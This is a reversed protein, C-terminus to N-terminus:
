EHSICMFYSNKVTFIDSIDYTYEKKWCAYTFSLQDRKSGNKVELWWLKMVEDLKKDFHNRVLCTSDIQQYTEPFGEERYKKMQNEVITIDDLGKQIVVEVEEYLSHVGYHSCCLLSSSKAYKEIYNLMNGLIHVKGDVYVSYNYGRLFQYGIIKVYRAMRVNDLSKIDFFEDIQIIKWISSTLEKSDTFCIYDLEPNVFQPEALQDYNGTIVCYICGKGQFAHNKVSYYTDKYIKEIGYRVAYFKLSNQECERIRNWKTLNEIEKQLSQITQMAWIRTSYEEEQLSDIKKFLIILLSLLSIIGEKSETQLFVNLITEIANNTLNKDNKFIIDLKANIVKKLQNLPLQDMNVENLLLLKQFKELVNQIEDM